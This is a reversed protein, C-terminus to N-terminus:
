PHKKRLEEAERLMQWLAVGFEQAVSDALNVSTASSDRRLRNATQEPTVNLCPSSGLRGGSMTEIAVLAL